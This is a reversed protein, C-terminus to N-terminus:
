IGFKSYLYSKGGGAGYWFFDKINFLGIIIALIGIVLHFWKTMGALSLASFIGLGALFYAIFLGATFLLGRRIARKKDTTALLSGILILLVAIACPNISDVFAAATIVSWSPNVIEQIPVGCSNCYNM